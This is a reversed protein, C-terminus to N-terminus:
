NNVNTFYKITVNFSKAPSVGSFNIVVPSNIPFSKFINFQGNHSILDADIIDGTNLESMQFRYSGTSPTPDVIIQAIEFHFTEASIIGLSGSFSTTEILVTADSTTFNVDSWDDITTGNLTLTGTVNINEVTINTFSINAIAIDILNNVSINFFSENFELFTGNFNLFPNQATWDYVGFFNGGFFNTGTFNDGTYNGGIYQGSANFNIAFVTGNVFTINTLFGGDGFYGFAQVFTDNNGITLITKNGFTTSTSLPVDGIFLTGNSTFITTFNAVEGTINTVNIYTANVNFVNHIDNGGMNIDGSMTCGVLACFLGGSISSIVSSLWSEDINLDQNVNDFQTANVGDLAGINTAWFESINVSATNNDFQPEQM